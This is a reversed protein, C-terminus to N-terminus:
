NALLYCINTALITIGFLVALLYCGISAKRMSTVSCIVAAASCVLIFVFPYRM